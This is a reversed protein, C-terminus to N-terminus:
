RPELTKGLDILVLNGSQFVAQTNALEALFLPKGGVEARATKMEEDFPAFYPPAKDLHRKDLLLHTVNYGNQLEALPAANTAAYLHILSRTRRRLEELCDRHFIQHGEEFLLV